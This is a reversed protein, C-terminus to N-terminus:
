DLPWSALITWALIRCAGFWELLERDEEDRAAAACLFERATEREARGISWCAECAPCSSPMNVSTGSLVRLPPDFGNIIL